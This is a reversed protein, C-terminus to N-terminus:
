KENARHAQIFDPDQELKTHTPSTYYDELLKGWANVHPLIEAEDKPDYGYNPQPGPYYDSYPVQTFRRNRPEGTYQARDKIMSTIALDPYGKMVGIVTHKATDDIQIEPPYEGREAASNVGALAEKQWPQIRDWGQAADFKPIGPLKTQHTVYEYGKLSEINLMLAPNKTTQSTSPIVEFRIGDPATLENLKEFAAEDEPHPETIYSETQGRADALTLVVNPDTLYKALRPELHSYWTEIREAAREASPEPTLEPTLSEPFHHDTPNIPETENM